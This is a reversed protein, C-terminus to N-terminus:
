AVLVTYDRHMRATFPLNVGSRTIERRDNHESARRRQDGNVNVNMRVAFSHLDGTDDYGLLLQWL